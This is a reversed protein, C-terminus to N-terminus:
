DHILMLLCLDSLRLVSFLLPRRVQLKQIDFHLIDWHKVEEITEEALLGLDLITDLRDCQVVVATQSVQLGEAALTSSPTSFLSSGGMSEECACDKKNAFSSYLEIFLMYQSRSLHVGVFPLRVQVVVSSSEILMERLKSDAEEAAEASIAAVFEFNGGGIGGGGDGRRKQAVAVNWAEKAIWLGTEVERNWAVEVSADVEGQHKIKLVESAQLKEYEPDVARSVLFVTADEVSFLLSDGRAAVAGMFQFDMSASALELVCFAKIDEGSCVPQLLPIGAIIRVSSFSSTVHVSTSGGVTSNSQNSSIEQGHDSASIQRLFHTIRQVSQFDLWMVVPQFNTSIDLSWSGKAANTNNRSFKLGIQVSQNTASSVVRLLRNREKIENYTGKITNSVKMAPYLSVDYAPLTEEILSSIARRTEDKENLFPSPSPSAANEEMSEEQAVEWLEVSEVTLSLDTKKESMQFPFVFARDAYHEFHLIICHYILFYYKGRFTILLSWLTVENVM